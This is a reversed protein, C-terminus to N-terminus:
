FPIDSDSVTAADAAAEKIRNLETMMQVISSVAVGLLVHAEETSLTEEPHLVPNRHFERIHDLFGTVRKDAGSENLIKIYAGWNRMKLKPMTGVVVAYYARIVAETARITHFGAATPIDFAICKGAQRIDNIANEPMSSRISEPILKEAEEILVSTDYGLKQSCYYTDLSRLEASFVTEFERLADKAREIEYRELTKEILPKKDDPELIREVCEQPNRPLATVIGFDDRDGNRFLAPRSEPIFGTM